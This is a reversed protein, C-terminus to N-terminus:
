LLPVVEEVEQSRPFHATKAAAIANRNEVETATFETAKKIILAKRKKTRTM